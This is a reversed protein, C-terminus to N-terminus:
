AQRATQVICIPSSTSEGDVSYGTFITSSQQSLKNSSTNQKCPSLQAMLCQQAGVVEHSSLDFDCLESLQMWIAQKQTLSLLDSESLSSALCSIGVDSPKSCSLHVDTIVYDLHEQCAELVSCYIISDVQEPLMELLHRAFEMPTHVSVRWGLTSLIDMEMSLVDSETYTGRCIQLLMDIGLVVPEYIKVATYFATIAALQFKSRSKLVDMSNGQGSSLYRDFFSMGIWVTEPSLSLTRQVQQIWQVMSKRAAENLDGRTRKFYNSCRTTEEQVRMADLRSLIGIQKDLIMTTM